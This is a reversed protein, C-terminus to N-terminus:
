GIIEYSNILTSIKNNLSEINEKLYVIDNSNDMSDARITEQYKKLSKIEELMSEQTQVISNLTDVLSLNTNYTTQLLCGNYKLCGLCKKPNFKCSM